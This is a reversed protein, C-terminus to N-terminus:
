SVETDIMIHGYGNVSFTQDSHIVTTSTAEEIIAPGPARDGPELRERQYIKFPVMGRKAFCFAPRSERLAREPNGDGKPLEVMEPKKLVGQGRVRLNVTQVLDSTTHGYRIQHLEEFRKRIDELSLGSDLPVELAHEQGLYRLELARHLEIAEESMGQQRLLDAAKKELSQFGKEFEAKDVEELIQVETHSFEAALDAMLMGWASFVGPALPVITEPIAMERALLPAFMPGAGGFVLLSFERPDYGREVTIERMAGVTNAMVVDFIGAAAEIPDLRLPEAIGGEIGKRSAVADLEM